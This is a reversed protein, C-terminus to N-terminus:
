MDRFKAANSLLIEMGRLERIRVLHPPHKALRALGIAANKQAAAATNADLGPGAIPLKLLEILPAIAEDLHPLYTPVLAMKSLCLAANGALLRHPALVCACLISVGTTPTKAGVTSAASVPAHFHAMRALVDSDPVETCYLLSRLCAERTPAAVSASLAALWVDVAFAAQTQTPASSKSAYTVPRLLQVRAAAQKCLRSLLALSREWVLADGLM